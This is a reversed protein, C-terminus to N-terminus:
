KRLNNNRSKLALSINMLYVRDKKKLRGYLDFGTSGDFDNMCYYYQSKKLGNPWKEMYEVLQKANADWMKDDVLNFDLEYYLISQVILWRQLGEIKDKKTWECNKNFKMDM